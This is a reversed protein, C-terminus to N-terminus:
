KYLGKVASWTMGDTAVVDGGVLIYAIAWGPYTVSSDSGFDISLQVEEGMFASLDFCSNYFEASGTWGPEGDVCWAYYNVSDSIEDDPYGDMPEVVVGNVSLNGGDYSPEIDHGHRIEVLYTSEDVYFNPSILSEGADNPYDDSGGTEWFYGLPFVCYFEWVPVGGDDCPGTTFGHDDGGLFVWNYAVNEFPCEVRDIPSDAPQVPKEAWAVSAIVVVCLITLLARM